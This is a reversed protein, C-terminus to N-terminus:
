TALLSKQKAKNKQKKQKGLFLTYGLTNTNGCPPFHSNAAKNIHNKFRPSFSLHHSLTDLAYNNQLLFLACPSSYLFKSCPHCFFSSRAKRCNDCPSCNQTTNELYLGLRPLNYWFYYSPSLSLSLPTPFPTPIQCFAHM